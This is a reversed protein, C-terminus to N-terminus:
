ESDSDKSKLDNDTGAKPPRTYRGGFTIMYGEKWIPHNPDDNAFTGGRTKCAERMREARTMKGKSTDPKDEKPRVIAANNQSKASDNVTHCAPPDGKVRQNIVDVFDILSPPLKTSM